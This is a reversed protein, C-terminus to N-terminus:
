ANHKHTQALQRTTNWQSGVSPLGGPVEAWPVEWVLISSHTTMEKELPDKRSRGSGPISGTDGADGAKWAGSTLGLTQICDRTFTKVEQAQLEM